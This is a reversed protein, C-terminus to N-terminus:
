EKSRVLTLIFWSLYYGVFSFFNIFHLLFSLLVQSLTDEDLLFQRFLKDTGWDKGDLAAPASASAVAKEFTSRVAGLPNALCDYPLGVM